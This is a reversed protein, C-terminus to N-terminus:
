PMISFCYSCCVKNRAKHIKIKPKQNGNKYGTIKPMQSLLSQWRPFDGHKIQSIQSNQLMPTLSEIETGLIAQKLMDLNM